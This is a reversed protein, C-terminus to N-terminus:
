VLCVFRPNILIIRLCVSINRPLWYANNLQKTPSLLGTYVYDDSFNPDYFMIEVLLNVSFFWRLSNGQIIQWEYANNAYIPYGGLEECFDIVGILNKGPTDIELRYIFDNEEDIKSALVCILDEKWEWMNGSKRLVRCFPYGYVNPDNCNFSAVRISNPLGNIMQLVTCFDDSITLNLFTNLTQNYPM